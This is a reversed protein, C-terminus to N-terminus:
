KEEIKILDGIVPELLMYIGIAYQRIEYQADPKLRQNFFHLLSQLSCTWICESYINQPLLLRAIEKAAGANVLEKYSEYSTKCSSEFYKIADIEEREGIRSDSHILLNEIKEDSSGQKNSTSQKRIEHPIYFEPEFEVYRGSMENWSTDTVVVPAGFTDDNEEMWESGVQYKWWQRFVFLPAKIRFSFYSHRYTSLHGHDYLFKVLKRDKETFTSSSKKFSVRASNAIKLRPELLMADFLEVNGKDLVNVSGFLEKPDFNESSMM